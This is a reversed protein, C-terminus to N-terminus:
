TFTMWQDGGPVREMRRDMIGNFGMRAYWDMLQAQSM